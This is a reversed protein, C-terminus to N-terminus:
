VYLCDILLFISIPTLKKLNKPLRDKDELTVATKEEQTWHLIFFIKILRCIKPM